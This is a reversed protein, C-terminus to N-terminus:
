PAATPGLCPTVNFLSQYDAKRLTNELRGCMLRGGTSKRGTRRGGRTRGRQLHDLWALICPLANCQLTRKLVAWLEASAICQCHGTEDELTIFVVGKATMPRQRVIVLGAVTQVRENARTIRLIGAQELNPGIIAMPHSGATTRLSQMDWVAGELETLMELNPRDDLDIGPLELLAPLDSRLQFQNELIGLKWLVNAKALAWVVDKGVRVRHLFDELGAFPNAAREMLITRADDEGVGTVATLPLRICLKGQHHELGSFIGGVKSKRM